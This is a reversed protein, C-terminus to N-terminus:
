NNTVRQKVDEILNLIVCMMLGFCMMLSIFSYRRIFHYIFLTQYIYAISLGYKFTYSIIDLLSELLLHYPNKFLEDPEELLNVQKIREHITKLHPLIKDSFIPINKPYKFKIM